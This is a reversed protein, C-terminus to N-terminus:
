EAAEEAPEDAADDADAEAPAAAPEADFDIEEAEEELEFDDDEEFDDEDEFDGRGAASGMQSAVSLVFEKLEALNVRLSECIKRGDDVDVRVALATDNQPLAALIDDVDLADDIERLCGFVFRMLPVMRVYGMARSHQGAGFLEAYPGGSSLDELTGAVRRELLGDLMAADLTSVVMSGNDLWAVDITGLEKPLTWGKEAAVARNDEIDALVLGYADIEAGAATRAEGPVLQLPSEGDEEKLELGELVKDLFAAANELIAQRVEGPNKPTLYAVFKPCEGEAFPLLAMGTDGDAFTDGFDQAAKWFSEPLPWEQAEAMQQLRELARPDERNWKSVSAAIADPLNVLNADPGVEGTAVFAATEEDFTCLCNIELKDGDSLGLGMAVDEIGYKFTGRNEELHQVLDSKADFWAALAGAADLAPEAEKALLAADADEAPMVCMRGPEGRFALAIEGAAGANKQTFKRFAPTEEGEAAEDETWTEALKAFFADPDAVPLSLRFAPEDEGEKEYVDFRITGHPDMMQLVNVGLTQQLLVPIMAPSGEAPTGAVLAMATDLFDQLGRVEVSAALDQGWASGAVLAAALWAMMRKKM